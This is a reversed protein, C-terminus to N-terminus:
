KGTPPTGLDAVAHNGGCHPAGLRLQWLHTPFYGPGRRRLMGILVATGALLPIIAAFGGFIAIQKKRAIMEQEMRIRTGETQILESRNIANKMWYRLMDAAEGAAAKVKHADDPEARARRERDSVDLDVKDQKIREVIQGSPIIWPSNPNGPVHLVVCHVLSSCWAAAFQRAVHEPPANGTDKLIVVIVDVHEEALNKALPDAIEKAAAPNLVEEPDFVSLAPRPGYEFDAPGKAFAPCALLLASLIFPKANM